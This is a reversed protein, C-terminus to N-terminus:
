TILRAGSSSISSIVTTVEIDSKNYVDSIARAIEEPCINHPVFSFLSPGSGSITCNLAGRNIAEKRASYFFPILPARVPELLEDRLSCQLLKKDNNHLALVLSSVLELQKVVTALPVTKPLVARADRTRIEIHPTIVVVKLDSPIPLNYVEPEGDRERILVIGGYLSPAVNDAHGSGCAIREGEVTALLLEKRTFPCGLLHNVACAGAVASAASSGLGSGLPMAKKLSLSIGYDPLLDRQRLLSWLYNAAVGATNEHPLLSLKGSDGTIDSITIGFNTDSWTAIVEDGPHDLAFGMIDFAPGINAVTAPAFVHARRLFKEKNM